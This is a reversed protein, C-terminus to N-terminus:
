FRKETASMEREREYKREIKVSGTKGLDWSRMETCYKIKLACKQMVTRRLPVQFSVLRNFRFIVANALIDSHEWCVTFLSPEILSQQLYNGYQFIHNPRRSLCYQSGGWLLLVCTNSHSTWVLAEASIYLKQQLLDAVQGRLGEMYHSSGNGDSNTNTNGRM